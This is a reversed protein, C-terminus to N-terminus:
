LCAWWFGIKELYFFNFQRFLFLHTVCGKVNPFLKAGNYFWVSTDNMLPVITVDRKNLKHPSTRDIWDATWEIPSSEYDSPPRSAMKTAVKASWKNLEAPAAAPDSPLPSTPEDDGAADLPETAAGDLLLPTLLQGPPAIRYDVRIQTCNYLERTCGERCSAWTCNKTGRKITVDSTVCQAQRPEFQACM